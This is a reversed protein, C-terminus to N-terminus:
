NKLFKKLNEETVFYNNGVKQAILKGDKIYRRLTQVSIDMEKSIEQLSFLTIEGLQKPM